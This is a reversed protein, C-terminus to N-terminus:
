IQLDSNEWADPSDNADGQTIPRHNADYGILRHTVLSGAIRMTVITNPLTGSAAPYYRDHRRGM